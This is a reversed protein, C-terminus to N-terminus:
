TTQCNLQYTITHGKPSVITIYDDVDSFGNQNEIHLKHKNGDKYFIKNFGVTTKQTRVKTIQEVSSIKRQNEIRSNDLFAISTAEIIINKEGFSTSCYITKDSNIQNAQAKEAMIMIFLLALLSSALMTFFNKNITTM